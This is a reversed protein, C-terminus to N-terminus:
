VLAQEIAQVAEVVTQFCGVTEMEQENSGIEVLLGDPGGSVLGLDDGADFEVSSSNALAQECLKRITGGM